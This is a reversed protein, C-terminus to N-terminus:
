TPRGSRCLQLGAGTFWITQALVIMGFGHVDMRLHGAFVGIIVLPGVVIGYVAMGRGLGGNRLASVSWLAVSVSAAVAFIRAFTQNIEFFSDIVIRWQPQAAATDRVLHRMLAPEIFGSIAGAVLAAIAAIGYAVLAALAFRDAALLRITLGGAGLFLIAVSAIGLSHAIGSISALHAVAAESAAGGTPHVVMTALAGASGAILAIGSRTDDTM